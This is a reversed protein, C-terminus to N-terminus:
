FTRDQPLKGSTFSGTWLKWAQEVEAVKDAQLKKTNVPFHIEKEPHCCAEADKCYPCTRECFQVWKLYKSNGITDAKVPCFVRDEAM